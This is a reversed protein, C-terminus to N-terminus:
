RRLCDPAVDDPAPRWWDFMTRDFSQAAGRSLLDDWSLIGEDVGARDNDVVVVHRLQPATQRLETYMAPYDWGRFRAPIVAAV